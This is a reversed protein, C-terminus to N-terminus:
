TAIGEDWGRVGLVDIDLGQQLCYAAYAAPDTERLRATVVRPDDDRRRHLLTKPRVEEDTAAVEYEPWEAELTRTLHSAPRDYLIWDPSKAHGGGLRYVAGNTGFLGEIGGGYEPSVIIAYPSVAARSPRLWLNWFLWAAECKVHLFALRATGHEDASEAPRELISWVAGGFQPAQVEDLGPVHQRSLKLVEQAKEASMRHPGDAPSYRKCLTEGAVAQCVDDLSTCVDAHIVVHAAHAHAFTEFALGDCCGSGPYFVVRSQLLAGFLSSNFVANPAYNGLM